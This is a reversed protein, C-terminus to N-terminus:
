NKDNNLQNLKGELEKIQEKLEDIASNNVTEPKNAHYLKLLQNRLFPEGVLKIRDILDGNEDEYKCSNLLNFLANIEEKAFEGMAVGNMFFGHQLLSHINAGFTNESMPYVQKGKELFLVNQSPIDSLIFPSHTLFLINIHEIQRFKISKIAKLLDNVFQRQLEPHFYLEIEDLIINVNKYAIVDYQKLGLEENDVIPKVSDLNKLHYIISSINMVKQQEGSSLLKVPIENQNSNEPELLIDFEFIPPPLKLLKKEISESDLLANFEELTKKPKELKKKEENQNKILYNFCEKYYNLLEDYEANDDYCMELIEYANRFKYTIHSDDQEIIYNLTTKLSEISKKYRLGLDEIDGNIFLAEYDIGKGYYKPYRMIRFSKAILYRFLKVEFTEDNILKSNELKPFKELLFNKYEVLEFYFVLTNINFDEFLRIYMLNEVFDNSGGELDLLYTEFFLENSIREKFDEIKDKEIGYKDILLDSFFLDMKHKLPKNSLNRPIFLNLLSFLFKEKNIFEAIENILEQNSIDKKSIGLLTKFLDFLNKLQGGQFKQRYNIENELFYLFKNTVKNFRIQEPKANDSVNLDIEPNEILTILMRQKLLAKENRIDIAGNRRYPHIVVPTQYGDNKHFIKSIWTIKDSSSRDLLDEGDYAEYTELIYDDEDLGYLTYNTYMTFFISNLKEFDMSEANGESNFIVVDNEVLKATFVHDGDGNKPYDVEIIYINEEITFYIRGCLHKIRLLNQSFPAVNSIRFFNNLIRLLLEILSSKGEGNKGVVAQVHIYKLESGEVIGRSFFGDPLRDQSNKVKVIKGKEDKYSSDFFYFQNEKLVKLIRQDCGALPQIAILKFGKNNM